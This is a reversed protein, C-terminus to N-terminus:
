FQAVPRYPLAAALGYRAPSASCQYPELMLGNVSESSKACLRAGLRSSMAESCPRLAIWGGMGVSAQFFSAHYQPWFEGSQAHVNPAVLVQVVAPWGKTTPAYRTASSMM